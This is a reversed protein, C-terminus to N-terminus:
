EDSMLTSIEQNLNAELIGSPEFAALARNVIANTESANLVGGIAAGFFPVMKMVNITAKTGSKAIFRYGVLKNIKNIIQRTLKKNIQKQAVKM